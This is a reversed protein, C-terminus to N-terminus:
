TEVKRTTGVLFKEILILGFETLISEPHFQVGEIEYHKHRIGMVLGCETEASIEICEPISEKELILSHYRTAKFPSPISEFVTRGDHYISSLKGHMPCPAKVVKAGFVQGITQHGLCIGLIPIRGMYFQILEKSIGTDNPDGPGPSIIIHTPSLMDIETLNIQDSRHVQYKFGIRGIYQALNYTFSDYNDLLLVM